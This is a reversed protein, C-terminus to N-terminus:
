TAHFVANGIAPAVGCIGIEGVAKGGLASAHYDPVGVSITRLDPIDTNVPVVYDALNGNIIRGDRPDLAGEEFLTDFASVMRSVRVTGFDADNRVEVFHAAWAHTSFGEGMANGPQAFSRAAADMAADAGASKNTGGKVELRERGTARLLDTIDVGGAPRRTPRIKGEILDLDEARAGRLPSGPWSALGLRGPIRPRSQRRCCSEPLRPPTMVTAALLSYSSAM